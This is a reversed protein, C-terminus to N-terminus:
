LTATRKIKHFADSKVRLLVQNLNLRSTDGFLALYAEPDDTTTKAVPAM